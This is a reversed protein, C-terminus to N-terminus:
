KKIPYFVKLVQGDKVREQKHSVYRMEWAPSTMTHRSAHHDNTDYGLMHLELLSHFWSYNEMKYNERDFPKTSFHILRARGADDKDIVFHLGGSQIEAIFM